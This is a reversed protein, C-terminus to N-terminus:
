KMFNTPYPEEMIGYLADVTIEDNYDAWSFITWALLNSINPNVKFKNLINNIHDKNHPDSKIQKNITRMMYETHELASIFNTELVLSKSNLINAVDKKNNSYTITAFYISLSAVVLIIVIAFVM